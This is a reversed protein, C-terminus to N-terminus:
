ESWAREGTEAEETTSSEEGEGERTSSRSRSEGEPEGDEARGGRAGRRCLFVPDGEEFDEGTVGGPAGTRLGVAPLIFTELGNRM